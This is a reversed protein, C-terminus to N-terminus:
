ERERQRERQRERYLITFYLLTYHLIHVVRERETERQRERQITYYLLTYHLIHVVRL